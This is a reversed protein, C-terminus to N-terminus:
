GCRDNANIKQRTCPFPAPTSLIAYLEHHRHRMPRENSQTNEIPVHRESLLLLPSNSHAGYTNFIFKKKRLDCLVMAAVDFFMTQFFCSLPARLNHFDSLDEFIDDFRKISAWWDNRQGLLRRDDNQQTKPKRANACRTTPRRKPWNKKPTPENWDWVFAASTTRFRILRTPM